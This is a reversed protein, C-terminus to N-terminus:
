MLKYGPTPPTPNVERNPRPPYKGSFLTHNEPDQTRIITIPSLPTWNTLSDYSHYVFDSSRM